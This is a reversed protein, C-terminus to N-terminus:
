TREREFERRALLLLSTSVIAIAGDGATGTAAGMAAGMAAGGTNAAGMMAGTGIAAGGMDAAADATADVDDMWDFGTTGGTTKTLEDRIPEIFVDPCTCTDLGVIFVVAAFIVETGAEMDM